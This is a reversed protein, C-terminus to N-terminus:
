LDDTVGTCKQPAQSWLAVTEIGDALALSLRAIDKASGAIHKTLSTM